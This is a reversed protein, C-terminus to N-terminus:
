GQEEDRGRRSLFRRTVEVDEDTRRRGADPDAARRPILKDLPFGVEAEAVLKDIDDDTLEVGNFRARELIQRTDTAETPRRLHRLEELLVEIAALRDLIEANPGPRRHGAVDFPTDAPLEVTRPLTDWWDLGAVTVHNWLWVMFPEFMPCVWIQHTRLQSRVDVPRPNNLYFRASEGTQLDFLWVHDGGWGHLSAIRQGECGPYQTKEALEQRTWRGVGFKGWNGGLGHEDVPHGAEVFKLDM